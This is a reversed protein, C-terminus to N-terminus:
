GNTEKYYADLFQRVQYGKAKGGRSQISILAGKPLYWIQNSGKQRDFKWRAGKLLREFDKFSFNNPSSQAAALLKQLRDV